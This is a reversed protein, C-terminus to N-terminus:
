KGCRIKGGLNKQSPNPQSQTHCKRGKGSAKQIRCKNRIKQLEWFLFDNKITGQTLSTVSVQTTKGRRAKMHAVGDRGEGEILEEAGEDWSKFGKEGPQTRLERQTLGVIRGEKYVFEM